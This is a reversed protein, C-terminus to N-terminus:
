SSLAFIQKSLIQIIHGFQLVHSDVCQKELSSNNYFEVSARQDLVFRVEDDDGQFYSTKTPIDCLQRQAVIV